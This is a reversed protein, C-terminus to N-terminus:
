FIKKKEKVSIRNLVSGGHGRSEAALGSRQWFSSSCCKMGKCPVLRELCFAWDTSSALVLWIGGFFWLGRSALAAHLSPFYFLASLICMKAQNICWFECVPFLQVKGLDRSLQYWRIWSAQFSDGAEHYLMPVHRKSVCQHAKRAAGKGGTWIRWSCPMRGRGTKKHQWCGPFFLM